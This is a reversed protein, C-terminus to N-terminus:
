DLEDCDGENNDNLHECRDCTRRGDEREGVGDMLRGLPCGCDDCSVMPGDMRWRDYEYGWSM